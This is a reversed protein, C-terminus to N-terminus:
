FAGVNATVITSLPESDCRKYLAVDAFAHEPPLDRASSVTGCNYLLVPLVYCKYLRVRTGESILGRRMWIKWM